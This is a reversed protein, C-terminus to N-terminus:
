LLSVRVEEEMSVDALKHINTKSFGAKESYMQSETVHVPLTVKGASVSYALTRMLCFSFKLKIDLFFM